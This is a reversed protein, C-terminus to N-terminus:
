VVHIIYNNKMKGVLSEPGEQPNKRNLVLNEQWQQNSWARQTGVFLRCLRQVTFLAPRFLSQQETTLLAASAAPKLFSEKMAVDLDNEWFLM